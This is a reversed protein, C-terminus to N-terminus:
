SREDLVRLLHSALMLLEAAKAPNNLGVERHSNPNKFAGIAGSFLHAIAEREAKPLTKDTLPGDVTAFAKRMLDVGLDTAEYGGANRVAIEVQKFAEFIATDYTERVYLPWATAQITPHLADRKLATEALLAKFKDHTNTTMGRRTVVHYVYNQDYSPAVLGYTVLWSHAEAVARKFAMKHQQTHTAPEHLQGDYSNFLTNFMNGAHIAGGNGSSQLARLVAWALEEVTLDLAAQMTPIYQKLM